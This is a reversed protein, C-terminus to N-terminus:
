PFDIKATMIKKRQQKINPRLMLEANANKHLYM